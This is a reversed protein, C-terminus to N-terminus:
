TPVAFVVAHQVHGILPEYGQLHLMLPMVPVLTM